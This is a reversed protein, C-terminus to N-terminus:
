VKKLLRYELSGHKLTFRKKHGFRVFGEPSTRAGSVMWRINNFVVAEHSLFPNGCMLSNAHPSEKARDALLFGFSQYQCTKSHPNQNKYFYMKKQFKIILKFDSFSVKGYRLHNEVKLIDEITIAETKKSLLENIGISDAMRENELKMRVIKEYLDLPLAHEVEQFTVMIDPLSLFLCNSVWGKFIKFKELVEQATLYGLRNLFMSM